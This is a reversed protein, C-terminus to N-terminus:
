KIKKIGNKIIILKESIAKQLVEDNVGVSSREKEEHYIHFVIACHKIVAKRRGLNILRAAIENDERGWGHIDENYGNIAILDNRWFAMNCGRLYYIDSNRYNKYFDSIIPLRLGNNRNKVGKQFLSVKVNKSALLKKSYNQDLIVRSGTVFTNKKAFSLHDEVFRHHLVLDGDIQIIYENKSSDIAKNRIRSLQFGEDPQWIHILPIPFIPAYKEILEKTESTSGDDAIIVEDPLISQNLISILCCELAAPWNYTSVILSSSPNQKKRM